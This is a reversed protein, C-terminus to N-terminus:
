TRITFEIYDKKKGKPKYVYIKKGSLRQVEPCINARSFDVTGDAEFPFQRCEEPKTEHILCTYKKGERKLFPCYNVYGGWLFKIGTRKWELSVGKCNNYKGL